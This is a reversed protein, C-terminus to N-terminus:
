NKKIKQVAKEMILKQEKPSFLDSLSKELFAIAVQSIHLTLRKEAEKAEKEIQERTTTLVKESRAKIRDEMRKSLADSEEKADQIIQKAQVQANKLITKEQELVKELREQAVQSSRLGDKITDQRKKLLTLIPGYLFKRLIFLVVLFNIVQAGLLVPELGFQKFLEM